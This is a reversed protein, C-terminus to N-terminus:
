KSRGSRAVAIDGSSLEDWISDARQDSRFRWGRGFYRVPRPIEDTAIVKSRYSINPGLLRLVLSMEETERTWACENNTVGM